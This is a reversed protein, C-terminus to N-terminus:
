ESNLPQNEIADKIQGEYKTGAFFSSLSLLVVLPILVYKNKNSKQVSLNKKKM